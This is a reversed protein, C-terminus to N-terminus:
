HAHHENAPAAKSSAHHGHGDGALLEHLAEVYHLLSVYTEVYERGAAVDTPEFDRAAAAAHFRERLGHRLHEVLLAELEVVSGHELAADAAPIVPGLDRGAEKLGTYPEGEGERHVRVLTEFFYRDALERAEDGLARVAVAHEFARRVEPEGEPLVWVLAHRVDGRELAVRGAAVVPGDLGDCHAWAPVAAVLTLALPLMLTAMLRRDFRIKV